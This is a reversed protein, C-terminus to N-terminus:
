DRGRAEKAARVIALIGSRVPEPLTEWREIILAPDARVTEYPL